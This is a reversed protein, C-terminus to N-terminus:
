SCPFSGKSNKLQELRAQFQEKKAEMELIQRRLSQLKKQAMLFARYVARPEDRHWDRGEGHYFTVYGHEGSKIAGSKIAVMDDTYQHTAPNLPTEGETEIVGKTLAYKTIWVKM